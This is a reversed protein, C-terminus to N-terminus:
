LVAHVTMVELLTHVLRTLNGIRSTTLLQVPCIFKSYKGTGMQAGSNPRALCTRGDRGSDGQENEVSLSFRTYYDLRVASIPQAHRFM